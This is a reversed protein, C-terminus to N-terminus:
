NYENIYISIDKGDFEGTAWAYKTILNKINFTLYVKEAGKFCKNVIEEALWKLQVELIISEIEVTSMGVNSITHYQHEIVRYSISELDCVENPIKMLYNPSDKFSDLVEEFYLTYKQDNQKIQYYNIGRGKLRNMIKEKQSSDMRIGFYIGKLASFNYIHKGPSDIIIRHEKEYEWCKSKYGVIKNIEKNNSISIFDLVGYDPPSNKYIIPFSHINNSKNGGLLLDLDYEICFGKHSNAYHAWLLEHDPTQSLSYIGAFKNLGMFQSHMDNLGQTNSEGFVKRLSDVQKIFKSTTILAEFPDNLNEFNPAYFYNEDLSKLDREFIESDGGRYKYVLM